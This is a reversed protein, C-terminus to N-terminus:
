VKRLHFLRFTDLRWIRKFIPGKGAEKKKIKMKEICIFKGIVPNSGRVEPTSLSREVLQAVVVEWWCKKVILKTLYVTLFHRFYLFPSRSHGMFFYKTRVELHITAQRYSLGCVVLCMQTFYKPEFITKNQEINLCKTPVVLLIKGLCSTLDFLRKNKGLCHFTLCFM